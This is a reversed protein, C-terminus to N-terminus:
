NSLHRLGKQTRLSISIEDRLLFLIFCVRLGLHGATEWGPKVTMHASLCVAGPLMLTQKWAQPPAVKLLLNVGIQCFDPIEGMGTKCLM